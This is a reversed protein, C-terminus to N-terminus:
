QHCGDRITTTHIGTSCWTLRTSKVFNNFAHWTMRAYATYAHYASDTYRNLPPHHMMILKFIKKKKQSQSGNEERQEGGQQEQQQEKQEIENLTDTLLRKAHDLQQQTIRGRAVFPKTPYGTNLGIIVVHQAFAERSLSSSPSSPQSLVKINPFHQEYSYHQQHAQAQEEQKQAPTTTGLCDKFFQGFFDHEISDHTYTDHNGTIVSLYKWANEQDDGDETSYRSLYHENLLQRVRAFEDWLSINTLDGTLLLHDILHNNSSVSSQSLSSSPSPSPPQFSDLAQQFMHVPYTHPGRNFKINLYGQIQKYDRLKNHLLFHLVSVHRDRTFLHPEWVHVDSMHALHLSPSSSVSDHHNAHHNNHHHHPTIIHHKCSSLTFLKQQQQLPIRTARFMIEDETFRDIQTIPNPPRFKPPLVSRWKEGEDTAHM